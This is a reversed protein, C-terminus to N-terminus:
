SAAIAMAMKEVRQKDVANEVRGGRKLHTGIIFGDVWRGFQNVNECTVGSGVLIRAKPCAERVRRVDDTDTPLGTGAGTVILADALGRELTDRASDELRTPGLPVAHKVHVDALILTKPCLSQGLRLTEFATGEIVGQDTLMAGTHVNVRIFSAGCAASLGLAARADNRLVNFGIPLRCASRIASAAVAMAAITEPPVSGKTFPVDGFNEIVIADAGGAESAQADAVARHVLKDMSGQWRPSGPLPGLHVVAIFVKKPARLQSFLTAM